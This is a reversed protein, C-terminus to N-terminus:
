VEAAIGLYDAAEMVDEAGLQCPDARGALVARRLEVVYRTLAEQQDVSWTRWQIAISMFLGSIDFRDLDGAVVLELIRPLYCWLDDHTGWTWSVANHVYHSLLDPGIDGIPTTTLAQADEPSVCHDCYDLESRRPWAAFADYAQRVAVDVASTASM